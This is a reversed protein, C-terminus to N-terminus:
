QELFFERTRECVKIMTKESPLYSEVIVGVLRDVNQENYIIRFYHNIKLSIIPVIKVSFGAHRFENRWPFLSEESTNPIERVTM